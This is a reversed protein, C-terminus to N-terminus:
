AATERLDAKSGRRKVANDIAFGREAEAPAPKCIHRRLSSREVRLAQTGCRLGSKSEYDYRRDARVCSLDKSARGVPRQTVRDMAPLRLIELM